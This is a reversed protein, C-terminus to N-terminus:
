KIVSVRMKDHLGTEFNRIADAHELSDLTDDRGRILATQTADDMEFSTSIEGASITQGVLDIAVEAGNTSRAIQLLADRTEPSVVPLALGNKRALRRDINVLLDQIAQQCAIFAAKKQVDPCGPATRAPHHRRGIRLGGTVKRAIQAEQLEIRFSMGIRSGTQLNATNGRQEQELSAAHDVLARADLCRWHQGLPDFAYVDEVGCGSWIEIM